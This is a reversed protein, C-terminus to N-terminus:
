TLTNMYSWLEKIVQENNTKFQNKAVKVLAKLSKPLSRKEKRTHILKKMELMSYKFRNENRSKRRLKDVFLMELSKYEDDSLDIEDDSSCNEKKPVLDQFQSCCIPADSSVHQMPEDISVNAFKKSSKESSAQQKKSVRAPNEIRKIENSATDLELQRLYCYGIVHVTGSGKVLKMVVPVNHTLNMMKQFSNNPNLSIFRTECNGSENTCSKPYMIAVVHVDAKANAEVATGSLSVTLHSFTYSLANWHDKGSFVPFQVVKNDPTLSVIFTENRCRVLKM